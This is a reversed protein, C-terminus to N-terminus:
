KTEIEKKTETQKKTKEPIVKDKIEKVEKIYDQIMFGYKFAKKYNDLYNKAKKDNINKIITENLNILFKNIKTIKKKQVSNIKKSNLLIKVDNQLNRLDELFLEKSKEIEFKSIWKVYFNLTVDMSYKENYQTAKIYKVFYSKEKNELWNFSKRTINELIDTWRNIYEKFYIESIDIIQNNFINWNTLDKSNQNFKNLYYEKFDDFNYDYSYENPNYVYKNIKIKKDEIKKDEIEINWVNEIYYLFDLIKTKSWTISLKIPIAFINTELVSDNMSISYDDLLVIKEIWIANKNQLNFTFMLTEIYNIFKFNSFEEKTNNTVNNKDKIEEPKYYINSYVPLIRSITKLDKTTNIKEQSYEEKKNEIFKDYTDFTKKNKFNEEYFDKDLDLLIWEIWELYEKGIVSESENEKKNKKFENIDKKAKMLFKDFDIWEKKIKEINKYLLIVEEKKNEIEFIDPIIYKLSVIGLIFLLTFYIIFNIIISNEQRKTRKM